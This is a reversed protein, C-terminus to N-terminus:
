EVGGGYTYQIQSFDLIKLDISGVAIACCGFFPPLPKIGGSANALMFFVLFFELFFFIPCSFMRKPVSSSVVGGGVRLLKPVGRHM